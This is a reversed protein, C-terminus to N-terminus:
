LAEALKLAARLLGIKHQRQMPSSGNNLASVAEKCAEILANFVKKDVIIAAGEIEHYEGISFKKEGPMAKVGSLVKRKM